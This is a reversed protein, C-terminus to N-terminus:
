DGNLLICINVTFCLSAPQSAPFSEWSSFVHCSPFGGRDLMSPLAGAGDEFHSQTLSSLQAQLNPIIVSGDEPEINSKGTGPSLESAVQLLWGQQVGLVKLALFVVSGPPAERGPLLVCSHVGTLHHGEAPSLLAWLRQCLCSQVHHGPGPCLSTAGMELAHAQLM